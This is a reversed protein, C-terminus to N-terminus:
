HDCYNCESKAHAIHRLSANHGNLEARIQRREAKHLRRKYYRGTRPENKWTKTWEAAGPPQNRYTRSM